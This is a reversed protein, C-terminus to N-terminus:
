GVEKRPQFIHVVGNCRLIIEKSGTYYNNHIASFTDIGDEQRRTIALAEKNSIAM